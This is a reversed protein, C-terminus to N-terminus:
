DKRLKVYGLLVFFLIVGIAAWLFPSRLLASKKGYKLEISDTDGTQIFAAWFAPQISLGEKNQDLYDLKARQLAKDKTMGSSLHTYFLKMIKSTSYDNVQWLSMLVSSAGAYSFSHALSMVGEGQQFKGYGTECASLVVLEADIDMQAIEYARLFNDEEESNDETFVLSSLIPNKNDLLGHMALHIIGFNKANEKFTKENAMIGKYFEGPLVESMMSVEKEAGPLPSLGDRMMRTSGGRSSESKSAGEEPYEAAFALIGKESIMRKEKEKKKGLMITASYNYSVPYDKILFPYSKYVRPNEPDSTLFTEFPIHALHQDPVIILHQGKKVKKLPGALFTEHFYRAAATYISDSLTVNQAIFRYNTLTKRLMITHHKDKARDIQLPFIDLSNKTVVFVYHMQIGLAYEILVADDKALFNQVSKLDGLGIEYRHNYYDPYEVMLEKKFNEIERNLSNISQQIENLDEENNTEIKIKQLSKLKQQYEKEKIKMEEPLDVLSQNEKSRLANVLLTSKSRESYFFADELYKKDKTSKYLEHAYFISRDFLIAAGLRFLILKNEESLYSDMLQEGYKAMAQVVKYGEKLEEINHTNDYKQKYLEISYMMIAAQACTALFDNNFTLQEAMDPINDIEMINSSNSLFAKIYCRNAADFDKIVSYAFGYQTWIRANILNKTSILRDAIPEYKNLLKKAEETKASWGYIEALNAAVSIALDPHKESLEMAKFYSEYSKSFNYQNKYIAGLNNYFIASYKSDAQKNAELLVIGEKCLGKAKTWNKVKAYVIINENLAHWYAMSNEGAINLVTNLIEQYMGQAESYRILLMYSCSLDLLSNTYNLNNTGYIEKIIDLAKQFSNMAYEHEGLNQFQHGAAKFKKAHELNKEKKNKCLENYSAVCAEFSMDNHQIVSEPFVLFNQGYVFSHNFSTVLLLILIQKM